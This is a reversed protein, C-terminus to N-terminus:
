FPVCGPGTQCIVNKRRSPLDCMMHLKRKAIDRSWRSLPPHRQFDLANLHYALHMAKTIQRQDGGAGCRMATLYDRGRRRSGGAGYLQRDVPLANSRVIITIKTGDTFKM